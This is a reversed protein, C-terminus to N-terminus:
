EGSEGQETMIRKLDRLRPVVIHVNQDPYKIKLRIDQRQSEQLNSIEAVLPHAAILGATVKIQNDSSTSDTPELIKAVCM